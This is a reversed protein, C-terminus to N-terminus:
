QTALYLETSASAFCEVPDGPCGELDAGGFMKVERVAGAWDDPLTAYIRSDTDPPWTTPVRSRHTGNSNYRVLEIELSPGYREAMAHVQVTLEDGAGLGALGTLLEVDFEGVDEYTHDWGVLEPFELVIDEQTPLDAGAFLPRVNCPSTEAPKRVRSTDIDFSLSQGNATMSHNLGTPYACYDRNNDLEIDLSFWMTEWGPSVEVYITDVDMQDISMPRICALLTLFM